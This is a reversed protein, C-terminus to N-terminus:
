INFDYCIVSHTMTKKRILQKLQKLSDTKFDTDKFLM